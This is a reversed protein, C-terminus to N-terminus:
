RQGKMGVRSRVFHLYTMQPSVTSVETRSFCRTELHAAARQYQVDQNRFELRSEPEEGRDWGPPTRGAAPSSGGSGAPWIGRCSPQGPRWPRGCCSRVRQSTDRRM